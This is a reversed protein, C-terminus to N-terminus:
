TMFINVKESFLERIHNLLPLPNNERGANRFIERAKSERRRTNHWLTVSPRPPNTIVAPIIDVIIGEWECSHLGHLKTM